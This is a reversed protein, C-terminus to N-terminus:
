EANKRIFRATFFFFFSVLLSIVAICLTSKASVELESIDRWQEAFIVNLSRQQFAFSPLGPNRYIGVVQGMSDSHSYRQYAVEDIAFEFKDNQIKGRLVYDSGDNYADEIVFEEKQYGDYNSLLFWQSASSMGAVIAFFLGLSAALWLTIKITIKM